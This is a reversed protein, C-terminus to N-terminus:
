KTEPHKAARQYDAQATLARSLISDLFYGSDAFKWYDSFHERYLPRTRSGWIRSEEITAHLMEPTELVLKFNRLAM